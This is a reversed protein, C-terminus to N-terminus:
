STSAAAARNYHRHALDLVVGLLVGAGVIPAWIWVLFSHGDLTGLALLVVVEAVFPLVLALVCLVLVGPHSRALHLDAASNHAAGSTVTAVPSRRASDDPGADAAGATDGVPAFSATTDAPTGEPPVVVPAITGTPASDVEREPGAPDDGAILEELPVEGSDETEAAQSPEAAQPYEAAQSHRGRSAADPDEVVTDTAAADNRGTDTAAADRERPDALAVASADDEDDPASHRGM